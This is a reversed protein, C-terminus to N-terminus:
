IVIKPATSPLKKITEPLWFLYQQVPRAKSLLLKPNIIKGVRRREIILKLEGVLSAFLYSRYTDFKTFGISIM